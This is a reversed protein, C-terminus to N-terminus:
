VDFDVEQDNRERPLQHKAVRGTPTHPLEAVVEVYRPVKFRALGDLCHRRLTAVDIVAGPAPVVFAKVEEETMDSPVGIVAAAAVAPYLELRAEVELPSLNEGRRRIVEKRRGVFTVSGDTHPEVLDGTHLWGDADLAAATEAPMEFYGRMVAPNRLLLEGVDGPAVDVGHAVVRATNVEGLVPHQRAWGLTGFPRTGRRWIFGMPSESLAYGCVIEIGFREEIQRQRRETPSPGTYCRRLPNDADDPREPRRMLIELMAGIANFETAGHRRAAEVFDGASFRPLLVLGARLAISGLASYAPANIHFLPLSTMLRDSADLQMWWPFSTGAWAYARHTQMVLKSRGTTGSTPIFVALDDPTVAARVADSGDATALEDVDVVPVGVATRDVTSRLDTDTVVVRPRVQTVFGALEAESGAPNIPVQIAGLQMLAFWIFLYRPENRATVVVRDGAGVGADHLGAAIRDIITAAEGFTWSRADTIVWEVDPAAEVAGDLLAPITEIVGTAV